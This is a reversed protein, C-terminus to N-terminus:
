RLCCHLSSCQRLCATWELFTLRNGSFSAFPLRASFHLKRTLTASVPHATSARSEPLTTSDKHKNIDHLYLFCTWILRSFLPSTDRTPVDGLFPCKQAPRQADEGKVKVPLRTWRGFRRVPLWWSSWRSAFASRCQGHKLGVDPRVSKVVCFPSQADAQCINGSRPRGQLEEIAITYLTSLM